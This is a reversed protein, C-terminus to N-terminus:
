TEKTNGFYGDPALSTALMVTNIDQHETWSAAQQHETSLWFEEIKYCLPRHHLIERLRPAFSNRKACLEPRERFLVDIREAAHLGIALGLERFALRYPATKHLTSRSGSFWLGKAGADLLDALLGDLQLAPNAAMLRVARLADSLLGGLGLPDDTLWDRDKCMCSLAIIEDALNEPAGPGDGAAALAQVEHFTLLGDLPDHHGMGPVLPRSLDISMKWHMLPTSSRPPLYTFGAHAAKALELAWRNYLDTGSQRGLRNLALMWKTLYHYYQGDREWELPEDLPEDPRREPLPKGIRLGGRTPHAEGERDGLGSLWGHRGDDGRHRGLLHHVQDVLRRALEEYRPDGTQRGLELFNCVAFADTWLYRKPASGTGALGTREAFHMMIESALAIRKNPQM